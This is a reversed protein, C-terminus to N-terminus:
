VSVRKSILPTQQSGVVIGYTWLGRGINQNAARNESEVEDCTRAEFLQRGISSLPRMVIRPAGYGIMLKSTECLIGLTPM